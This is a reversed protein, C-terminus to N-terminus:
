AYINKPVAQINNIPTIVNQHLETRHKKYADTVRDFQRLHDGFENVFKNFNKDNEELFQLDANLVEVKNKLAVSRVARIPDEAKIKKIGKELEDITNATKFAEPVYELYDLIDLLNEANKDKNIIDLIVKNTKIQDLKQLLDDNLTIFDFTSLRVSFDDCKDKVIANAKFKSWDFAEKKEKYFIEFITAFFNQLEPNEQVKLSSMKKSSLNNLIEKMKAKLADFHKIAKSLEETKTHIYDEANKHFEEDKKAQTKSEAM